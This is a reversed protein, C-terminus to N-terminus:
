WGEGDGSVCLIWIFFMENTMSLDFMGVYETSNPAIRLVLGFLDGVYALNAVCVYLHRCSCRCSKTRPLHCVFAGSSSLVGCAAMFVMWKM